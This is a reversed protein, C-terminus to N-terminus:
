NATKGALKAVAGSEDAGVTSVAAPKADGPPTSPSDAFSSGLSATLDVSKGADIVKTVLLDYRFGQPHTRNRLVVFLVQAEADSHVVVKDRSFIPATVMGRIESGDAATDSDIPSLLKVHLLTGKPLSDADNEVDPHFRTQLHFDLVAGSPYRLPELATGQPFAPLLFVSVACVCSVFSRVM